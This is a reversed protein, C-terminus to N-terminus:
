RRRASKEPSAFLGKAMDALADYALGLSVVAWGIFAFKLKWDSKDEMWEMIPEEPWLFYRGVLLVVVFVFLKVGSRKLIAADAMELDGAM